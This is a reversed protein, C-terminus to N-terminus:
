HEHQCELPYLLNLPRNVVNKTSLLFKAARINEDNSTILEVIKALKWSGRHLDKKLQVIDGFQPTENAEIRPPKLKLISREQLSLLYDRQWIKWFLELLRQGKKWIKLLISKSSPQYPEFDPDDREGKDLIIPVCTKKNPSLFHSPTIM